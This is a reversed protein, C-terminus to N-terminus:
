FDFRLKFFFCHDIENKGISLLEETVALAHEINGQQFFDYEFFFLFFDNKVQSTAYALHDLINIKNVATNNPESDIHDLAEQMWM